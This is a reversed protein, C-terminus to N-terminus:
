ASHAGQYSYNREIIGMGGTLILGMLGILVMGAFVADFRGVEAMSWVYVGLGGGKVGVMEAAVISIWGVGLGIKMGNIISGISAPVIVKTFLTLQKAGLTRAADILIPDISKVGSRTCLFVPFFTALVVLFVADFPSGFFYIAFPIWALPPIPRLIEAIPSTFASLIPIYGSLLGLPVALIVALAFGYLIRLLSAWVHQGITFGLFDKEVLTSLLAQMVAEPMPLYPSSLHAALFHWALVFIALALLNLIRRTWISHDVNRGWVRGLRDHLIQGLHTSSSRDSSTQAGRVTNDPQTLPKTRNERNVTQLSSASSCAPQRQAWMNLRRLNIV